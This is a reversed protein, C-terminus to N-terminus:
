YCNAPRAPCEGLRQEGPAIQVTCNPFLKALDVKRAGRHMITECTGCIARLNGSGATRARYEIMGLAPQRPERCKLCYITGPSCPRKRSANRQRLFQRVTAGQFLVPRAKDIAALGDRRWNRVTNKHVKCCRVLEPISYSRDQKVANPNVRKAPM